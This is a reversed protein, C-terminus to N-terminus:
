RQRQCTLLGAFSVQVSENELHSSARPNRGKKREQINEEALPIAAHDVVYLSAQSKASATNLNKNREQLGYDL